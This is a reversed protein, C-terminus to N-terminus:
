LRLLPPLRRRFRARVGARRRRQQQQEEEQRRRESAPGFQTAPAPFHLLLFLRRVLFVHGRGAGGSPRRRRGEEAQRGAGRRGQGEQHQVQRGGVERELRVREQGAGAGRLGGRKPPAQGHVLLPPRAHPPPEGHRLLEREDDPLFHLDLSAPLCTPPLFFTLSKVM